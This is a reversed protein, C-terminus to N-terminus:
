NPRTTRPAPRDWENVAPSSHTHSASRLANRGPIGTLQKVRARVNKVLSDPFGIIDATVIAVRETGNDLVLAKAYLESGVGQAPVLRLYDAMNDKGVSPTINARAVGAKM